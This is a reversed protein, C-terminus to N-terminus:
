GGAAQRIQDKAEDSLYPEMLAILHRNTRQYAALRRDVLRQMRPEATGDGDRVTALLRNLAELMGARVSDLRTLQARVSADSLASTRQRMGSLARDAQRLRQRSTAIWAEATVKQDGYDTLVRTV